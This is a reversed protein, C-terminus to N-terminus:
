EKVRREAIQLAAQFQASKTVGEFRNFPSDNEYAFQVTKIARALTDAEAEAADVAGQTLDLEFVADEWSTRSVSLERGLQEIRDLVCAAAVGDKSKPGHYAIQDELWDKHQRVLDDTVRITADQGDDRTYKMGDTM